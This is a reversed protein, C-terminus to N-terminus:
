GGLKDKFERWARYQGELDSVEKSGYLEAVTWVTPDGEIRVRKGVKALDSRIWAVEVSTSSTNYRRVLQVQTIRDKTKSM